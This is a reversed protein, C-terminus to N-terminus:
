SPINSVLQARSNLLTLREITGFSVVTWEFQVGLVRTGEALTRLLANSSVSTLVPASSDMM